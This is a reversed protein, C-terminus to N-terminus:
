APWERPLPEPWEAFPIKRGAPTTLQKMFFPVGAEACQDRASRFWALEYPRAGPGSEPGAILWDICGIAELQPFDPDTALNVAEGEAYGPRFLRVAGCRGLYLPGPAPQSGVEEDPDVGFRRCLKIAAFSGVALRDRVVAWRPEPGGMVHLHSNRVANRVLQADNDSM